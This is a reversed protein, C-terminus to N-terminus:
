HYPIQYNMSYPGYESTGLANTAKAAFAYSAGSTLNAFLIPLYPSTITTGSNCYVTYSTIPSGGDNAVAVWVYASGPLTVAYSVTPSIPPQQGIPWRGAQVSIMQQNLTWMGSAPSTPYTGSTVPATNSIKGGIYRHRM